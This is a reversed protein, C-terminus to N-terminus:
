QEIILEFLEREEDVTLGGSERKTRLFWLRERLKNRTMEKKTLSGQLGSLKIEHILEPIIYPYENIYRIIIPSVTLPQTKLIKESITNDEARVQVIVDPFKIPDLPENPITYEENAFREFLDPNTTVIAQFFTRLTDKAVNYAQEIARTTIPPKESIM